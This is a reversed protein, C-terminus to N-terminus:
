PHDTETGHHEPAPHTRDPVSRSETIVTMRQTSNVHRHPHGAAAFVLAVKAEAAVWVGHPYEAPIHIMHGATVAIDRGDIHVFGGGTIIYLEHDGEHTHLPFRSGPQMRVFDCGIASGDAKIDRVGQKGDIGRLPVGADDYMARWDGDTIHRIHDRYRWTRPQLDM